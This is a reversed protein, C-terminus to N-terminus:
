ARWAIKPDPRRGAGGGRGAFPNRGVAKSAGRRPAVHTSCGRGAHERRRGASSDEQAGEAKRRVDIASCYPRAPGNSSVAPFAGGELAISPGDVQPGDM